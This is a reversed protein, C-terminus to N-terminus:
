TPMVRAMSRRYRTCARARESHPADCYLMGERKM